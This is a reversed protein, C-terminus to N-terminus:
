RKLARQPLAFAIYVHPFGRQSNGVDDGGTACFAVYERGDVEYVVPVGQV